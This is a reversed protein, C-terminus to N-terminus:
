RFKVDVGCTGVSAGAWGGGRGGRGAVITTADCDGGAAVVGLDSVGGMARLSAGVLSVTHPAHSGHTCTHTM